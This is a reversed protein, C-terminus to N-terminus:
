LTRLRDALRPIPVRPDLMRRDHDLMDIPEVPYDNNHLERSVASAIDYFSHGDANSDLMWVGGPQQLLWLMMAACDDLFCMAPLWTRSARVVGERVVQRHMFDSLNNSGTYTDIVWGLRAVIADPNHDLAAREGALKDAGYGETADPVSSLTFPGSANGSFVMASSTYLIRVGRQRAIAALQGTWIESAVRWAQTGGPEHTPAALHVIADPQNLEVMTAVARPDGPPTTERNWRVVEHSCQSLLACFARGVTGSAGTVLVRM